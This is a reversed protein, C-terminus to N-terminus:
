RNANYINRRVKQHHRQCHACRKTGKRGFPNNGRKNDDKNRRRKPRSPNRSTTQTQQSPSTPMPALTRLPSPAHAAIAGNNSETTIPLSLVSPAITDPIAFLSVDFIDKDVLSTMNQHSTEDDMLSPFDFLPEILGQDSHFTPFLQQTEHDIEDYSAAQSDLLAGEAHAGAPNETVNTPDLDPLMHDIPLQAASFAEFDFMDYFEFTEDLGSVNLPVGNVTSDASDLLGNPIDPQNDDFSLPPLVGSTDDDRPNIPFQLTERHGQYPFFPWESHTIDLAPRNEGLAPIYYIREYVRESVLQHPLRGPIPDRSVITPLSTFGPPLVTSPNV